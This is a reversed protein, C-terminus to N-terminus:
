RCAQTMVSTRVSLWCTMMTQVILRSDAAPLQHRVVSVEKKVTEAAKNEKDAAVGADAVLNEDATEVRVSDVAAREKAREVVAAM